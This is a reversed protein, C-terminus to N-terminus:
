PQHWGFTYGVGSMTLGVTINNPVLNGPVDEPSLPMYWADAGGPIALGSGDNLGDSYFGPENNQVMFVPDSM